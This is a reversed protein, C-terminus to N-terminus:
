AKRSGVWRKSARESAGASVVTDTSGLARSSSDGFDQGERPRLLRQETSALGAALALRVNSAMRHKAGDLQGTGSDWGSTSRSEGGSYQDSLLDKLAATTDSEFRHRKRLLDMRMKDLEELIERGMKESVASELVMDEVIGIQHHIIKLVARKCIFTHLAVPSVAIANKIARVAKKEAQESEGFLLTLMHRVPRSASRGSEELAEDDPLAEGLDQRAKRHAHM